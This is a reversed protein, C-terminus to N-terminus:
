GEHCQFGILHMYAFTNRVHSFFREYYLVDHYLSLFLGDLDAFLKGFIESGLAKENV